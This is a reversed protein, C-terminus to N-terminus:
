LYKDKLAVLEAEADAGLVELGHEVFAVFAEVRAKLSALPSVDAVASLSVPTVPTPDAVTVPASAFVVTGTASTGDDLAATIPYSGATVSTLSFSATGASDTIVSAPLSVASDTSLNVTQSVVAVGNADTVKVQATNASVGDAASNNTVLTLTLVNPM